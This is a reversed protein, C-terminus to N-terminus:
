QVSRRYFEIVEAPDGDCVVRGADLCIAREYCRIQALDHTIMLVKQELAEITANVRASNRLDLLTTPEDFVVYEPAMALVGAIAVLQKEGGSLQHILRDEFNNLNLRALIDQIRRRSEDRDLGINKLGFGLDEAVTPFVIQNDPNQFVFGVRRRVQAADATTSIGEVLVEGSSPLLLGNLLRAFTSKGSGNAGLVAVRREVIRLDISDLLTTESVRYCVNRLEIM